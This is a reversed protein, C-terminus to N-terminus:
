GIIEAREVISCRIRRVIGEAKGARSRRKTWAASWREVPSHLNPLHYPRAYAIKGCEPLMTMKMRSFPLAYTALM